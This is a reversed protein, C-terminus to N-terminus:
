ALRALWRVGNERMMSAALALIKIRNPTLSEKVVRLYMGSKAAALAADQGSRKCDPDKPSQYSFAILVHRDDKRLICATIRLKKGQRTLKFSTYVPNNIEHTM